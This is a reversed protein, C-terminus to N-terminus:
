LWMCLLPSFLTLFFLPPRVIPFAFLLILIVPFLIYKGWARNQSQDKEIVRAENM